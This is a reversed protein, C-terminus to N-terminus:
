NKETRPPPAQEASGQQSSTELGDFYLRREEISVLENGDLQYEDEDNLRVLCGKQCIGQLSAAPKLTHDQKADGEMITVKYDKDDRNTLSAADADSTWLLAAMMSAALVKFITM